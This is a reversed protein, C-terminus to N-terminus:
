RKLTQEKPNPSLEPSPITAFSRQRTPDLLSMSSPPSVCTGRDSGVDPQIMRHRTPKDWTKNSRAVHTLRGYCKVGTQLVSLGSSLVLIGFGFGLGSVRFDLGSPQPQIRLSHLEVLCMESTPGRYPSRWPDSNQTPFPTDPM